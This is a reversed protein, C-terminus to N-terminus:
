HRWLFIILRLIPVNRQYIADCYDNRAKALDGRETTAYHLIEVFGSQKNDGNTDLAYVIKM